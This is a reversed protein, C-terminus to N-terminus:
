PAPRRRGGNERNGPRELTRMLRRLEDADLSGDEPTKDFTDFNRALHRLPGSALQRDQPLEERSIKGDKDADLLWIRAVAPRGNGNPRSPTPQDEDTSTNNEAKPNISEDSVEATNANSSISEFSPTSAQRGAFERVVFGVFIIAALCVTTVVIRDTRRRSIITNKRPSGDTATNAFKRNTAPGDTWFDDQQSSGVEIAESQQAAKARAKPLQKNAWTTFQNPQDSTDVMKELISVAAAYQGEQYLSKSLEYQEKTRVLKPSNLADALGKSDTAHDDTPRDEKSKLVNTLAVAFAQMSEYRDDINRSMAKQCVSVIQADIQPRIRSALPPADTMVANVISVLSGDGPFPLQGTLLEYFLVGLAYIDSAPGIKSHDGTLQEPAMYGPSGVVTGDMTLRAEFKRADTSSITSLKAHSVDGNEDGFQRALGFDMVIPENRRDIMINAPKLDRHILGSSHADHLALAVKRVIRVVSAVPPVKESRIYDSLPRGEIYAMSIYHIGHIEGVDYVPCINPHQLTAASRAERYFRKMLTPKSDRDFKPTKLAVKRDLQSDHALYVAGMGGEGLSREIQYRGFSSPLSEPEKIPPTSDRKMNELMAISDLFEEVEAADDGSYRDAYERISPREGKRMRATFEEGLANLIDENISEM